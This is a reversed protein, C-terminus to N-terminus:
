IENGAIDPCISPLKVNGVNVVVISMLMSISIPMWECFDNGNAITAANIHSQSRTRATRLYLFGFTSNQLVAFPGNHSLRYFLILYELSVLIKSELQGPQYLKLRINNRTTDIKM